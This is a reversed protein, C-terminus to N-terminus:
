LAATCRKKVRQYAQGYARPELGDLLDGRRQFTMEVAHEAEHLMGDGVADSLAQVALDHADLALRAAEAIRGVERRRDIEM